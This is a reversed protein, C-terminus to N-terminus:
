CRKIEELCKKCIRKGKFPLLVDPDDQGCFICSVAPEYKRLIISDNDTFIEVPDNEEIQYARRLEKPIVLRGLDDVRRVIGTAKM